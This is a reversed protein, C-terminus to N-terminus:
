VNWNNHPKPRLTEGILADETAHFWRTLRVRTDHLRGAVLHTVERYIERGLVPDTSLLERMGPGDIAIATTLQVCRGSSTYLYPEVIASWGVLDNAGLVEVVVVMSGTSIQIELEVRGSVILYLRNALSGERFLHEGRRYEETRAISSLAMLQEDSLNKFFPSRRLMSHAIKM